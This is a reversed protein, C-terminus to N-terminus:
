GGSGGGFIDALWAKDDASVDLIEAVVARLERSIQSMALADQAKDSAAVKDLRLALRRAIGASFRAQEDLEQGALLRELEELASSEPSGQSPTAQLYRRVQSESVGLLDSILDTKHGADRLVRAAIARDSPSSVTVMGRM